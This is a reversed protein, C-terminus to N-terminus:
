YYHRYLKVREFGFRELEIGTGVQPDDDTLLTVKLDFGEPPSVSLSAVSLLTTRVFFARLFSSPFHNIVRGFLGIM